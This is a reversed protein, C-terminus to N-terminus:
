LSTFRSDPFCPIEQQMFCYLSAKVLM